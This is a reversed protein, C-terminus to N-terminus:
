AMTSGGGAAESGEVTEGRWAVVVVVKVSWPWFLEDLEV